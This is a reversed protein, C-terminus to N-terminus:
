KTLGRKICSTVYDYQLIQISVAATININSYGAPAQAQADSRLLNYFQKVKVTFYVGIAMGVTFMALLCWNCIISVNYYGMVDLVYICCPNFVM